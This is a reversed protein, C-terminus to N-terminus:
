RSRKHKGVVEAVVAELLEDWAKKDDLRPFSAGGTFSATEEDLRQELLSRWVHSPEIEVENGDDDLNEGKTRAIAQWCRRIGEAQNRMAMDVRVSVQSPIKPPSYAMLESGIGSEVRGGSLVRRLQVPNCRSPVAATQIHM